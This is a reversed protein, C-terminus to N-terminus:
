SLTQGGFMENKFCILLDIWKGPVRHLIFKPLTMSTVDLDFYSNYLSEVDHCPLLTMQMEAPFQEEEVSFPPLGSLAVGLGM